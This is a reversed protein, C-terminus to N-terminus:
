RFIQLTPVQKILTKTVFKLLIELFGLHGYIQLVYTLPNQQKYFKWAGFCSKRIESTVRTNCIRRVHYTCDRAVGGIVDVACQQSV